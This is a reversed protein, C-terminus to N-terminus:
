RACIATPRASDRPWETLSRRLRHTASSGSSSSRRGGGRSGKSTETRKAAARTRRAVPHKDRDVAKPTPGRGKLGKARKGGSGVTPGKKSGVNRMAGKRKSNGAM